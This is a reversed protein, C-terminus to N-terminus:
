AQWWRAIAGFAVAIPRGDAVAVANGFYVGTLALALRRTIFRWWHALRAGCRADADGTSAPCTGADREILAWRNGTGVNLALGHADSAAIAVWVVYALVAVACRVAACAGTPVKVTAAFVLRADFSVRMLRWGIETPTQTKPM